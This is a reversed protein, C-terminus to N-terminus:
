ARLPFETRGPSGSRRSREAVSVRRSGAGTSSGHGKGFGVDDVGEARDLIGLQMAADDVEVHDALDADFAGVHATSTASVMAPQGSRLSIVDRTFPATPAKGLDVVTESSKVTM